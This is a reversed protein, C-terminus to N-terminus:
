LLIYIIVFIYIMVLLPSFRVQHTGDLHSSIIVHDENTVVLRDFQARARVLIKSSMLILKWKM